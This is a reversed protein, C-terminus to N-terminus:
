QQIRALLICTRASLDCATGQMGDSASPVQQSNSACVIDQKQQQQQQQRHQQLQRM